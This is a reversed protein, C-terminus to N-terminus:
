SYRFYFGNWKSEYYHCKTILPNPCDIFGNIPPRKISWSAQVVKLRKKFTSIDVYVLFEGENIKWLLLMKYNPRLCDIFGNDSNIKWFYKRMEGNDDLTTPHYVPLNFIVVPCRETMKQMNQTQMLKMLKQIIIVNKTICNICNFLFSFYM